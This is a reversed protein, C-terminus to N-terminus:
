EEELYGREALRKHYKKATIWSLNSKLAVERITMTKRSNYLIKLIAKEQINFYSKQKIM